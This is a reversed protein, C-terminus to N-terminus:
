RMEVKEEFYHALVFRVAEGINLFGKQEQIEKLKNVIKEDLVVTIRIKTM